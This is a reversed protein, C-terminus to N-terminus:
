RHWAPRPEEGAGVKTGLAHGKIYEEALEGRSRDMETGTHGHMYGFTYAVPDDSIGHRQVFGMDVKMTFTPKMGPGMMEMVTEHALARDMASNIDGKMFEWATSGLANVPRQMAKEWEVGVLRESEEKALVLLAEVDDGSQDWLPARMGYSHIMEVWGERTMDEENAGYTELVSKKQEESLGSILVESLSVNFEDEAEDEGITEYWNMVEIVRYRDGSVCRYFKGGYDKWNVDGTLFKWDDM